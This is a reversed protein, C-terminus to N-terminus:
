RKRKPLIRKSCRTWLLAAENPAKPKSAAPAPKTAELTPTSPLEPCTAKEAGTGEAVAAGAVPDATATAATPVEQGARATRAAAPLEPATSRPPTALFAM